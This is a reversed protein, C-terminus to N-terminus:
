ATPPSHVSGNLWLRKTIIFYPLILFLACVLKVAYDGLSWTIWPLGTGAFAIGYFIITDITSAISSSILPAHWWNRHRLRDFIEINTLQGIIFASGSALAIRPTALWFSLLVAVAFGVYVVTRARAAGLRRNTLDAVLFTVPFSFHGWTLWNNIPYGVLINSVTIVVAMAIIGPM